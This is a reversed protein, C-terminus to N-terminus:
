KLFEKQSINNPIQTCQSLLLSSLTKCASGIKKEPM